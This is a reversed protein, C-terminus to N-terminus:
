HKVSSATGELFQRIARVEVCRLQRRFETRFDQPLVLFELTRAHSRLVIQKYLADEAGLVLPPGTDNLITSSHAGLPEASGYSSGSIGSPRNMPECSDQIESVIGERITAPPWNTGQTMQSM